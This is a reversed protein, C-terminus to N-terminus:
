DYDYGYNVISGVYSFYCITFFYFNYFFSLIFTSVNINSCYDYDEDYGYGRIYGFMEDYSSSYARDEVWSSWGLMLCVLLTERDLM